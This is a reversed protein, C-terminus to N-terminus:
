ELSILGTGKLGICSVSCVACVSNVYVPSYTSHCFSCHVTENVNRLPVVDRSDLVLPDGLDVQVPDAHNLPLRDALAVIKRAQNATSEPPDCQLLRKALRGALAVCQQKYAQTLASRLALILHENRLGCTSFYCALALSRAEDISLAEKRMQEIRLGFVYERCLAIIECLETAEDQGDAVTFLSSLLVNEFLKIAESFKGATTLQLAVELERKLLDVTFIHCPRAAHHGEKETQRILSATTQDFSEYVVSSGQLCRMILPELPAFNVIACQDHLLKMATDIDGVALHHYAINSGITLREATMVGRPPFIGDDVDVFEEESAPSPIDDLQLSSDELDWGGTTDLAAEMLAMDFASQQQGDAKGQEEFIGTEISASAAAAAVMSASKGTSQVVKVKAKVPDATLPWPETQRCLPEPQSFRGVSLSSAVSKDPCFRDLIDQGEIELGASKCALYALSPVGIDVLANALDVNDGLLIDNQLRNDLDGKVRSEDALLQLKPIDGTVLHLFGLRSANGVKRLSQEAIVFNGLTLAEDALRNWIEARDLKKAAEFASELDCCEISLEFRSAPEQVFGLALEAYGNQRLYSIISQGMLNANAIMHMVRDQDGQLLALKFLMETPDMKFHHVTSARDVASVTDDCVRVLYLPVQITCIVGVDGNPLLYKLHHANTFFLLGRSDWIASKINITERITAIPNLTRRDAVYLVHSGFLALRSNDSSWVAYKVKSLAAEAVVKDQQADYLQVTEDSVMLFTGTPGPFLRTIKEPCPITRYVTNDLAKIHIQQEAQDLVAFRNRAVFVACAGNGKKVTSDSVTSSGSRMSFLDYGPSEISSSLLLANDAASFHFLAPLNIKHDLNVIPSEAKDSGKKSGNLDISMVTRDRLLFLQSEEFVCYAPREHELKFVLLGNDHGAAILNLTPHTAIIWYRDSQRRHVIPQAGRKNYDWIRISKDESNSIILDAHPHFVVCSINNFHGRFTDTEWARTENYRWLKVSRDDSGSVILPKTPHFQVWNVGRDHGELVFKVHGEPAGFLDIQSSRPSPLRVIDDYPSTAPSSHKRRLASVDWVRITQDLSASVIIDESPHFQACMVYHSHGTLVALCTRSQWNWVRVTQDDSASVIWPAEHHFFVTRIYDMHGALTFLCRRQQYNWVRIKGDDGGTVFLPQTPHFACGRVPGEHEEYKDVLTGM